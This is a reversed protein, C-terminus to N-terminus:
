LIHQTRICSELFYQSKSQELITMLKMEVTM